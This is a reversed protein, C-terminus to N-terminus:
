GPLLRVCSSASCRSDLCSNNTSSLLRQIEAVQRERGVFSTLPEALNSRAGKVTDRATKNEPLATVPGTFRYGRRALTELWDEGGPAQALARRIASIQVSLNSEEVILGSWAAEMIRTKPVCEPAARVLVALVDVARQGLPVTKGTHTLAHAEADLLFPGIRYKEAV